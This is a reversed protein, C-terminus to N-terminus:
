WYMINFVVWACNASRHQLEDGFYYFVGPALERVSTTQAFVSQAIILVALHLLLKKM